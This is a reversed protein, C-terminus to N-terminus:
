AFGNGTATQMAVVQQEQVTPTPLQAYECLYEIHNTSPDWKVAIDKPSAGRLKVSTFRKAKHYRTKGNGTLIFAHDADQGLSDSFSLAAVTLEEGNRMMDEASRGIQSLIIIPKRYQMALAKIRNSNDKIGEWGNKTTKMLYIPDVFLIDPDDQTLIAELTTPTCDGTRDHIRFDQELRGIEQARRQYIDLEQETLSMRKIKNITIGTALADLKEFLQERPMELTVYSVKKGSMFASFAQFLAVTTKGEGPRGSIIGYDGPRYGMFHEDLEPIGTTIGMPSEGAAVAQRYQTIRDLMERFSGFDSIRAGRVLEQYKAGIFEVIDDDHRGLKTALEQTFGAIVNRQHSSIVKDRYFEFRDDVRGPTFEPIQQQVTSLAPLTHYRDVHAQIFEWVQRPINETFSELTIGRTQADFYKQLNAEILIKHLFQAESTNLEVSM